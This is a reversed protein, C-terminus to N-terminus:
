VPVVEALVQAGIKPKLASKMVLDVPIGLLDSLENKLRVFQFLTPPTSFDVLIDLDSEPMAEERVYSGFIGLYNVNYREGIDPLCGHLQQRITTLDKEKAIMRNNYCIWHIETKSSQPPPFRGNGMKM